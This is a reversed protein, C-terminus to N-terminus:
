ARIAIRSSRLKTLRMTRRWRRIMMIIMMMMTTTTTMSMMMTMRTMMMRTTPMRMRVTQKRLRSPDLTAFPSRKMEVMAYEGLANEVHVDTCEDKRPANSADAQVEEEQGESHVDASSASLELKDQAEDRAGTRALTYLFGIPTASCLPYSRAM